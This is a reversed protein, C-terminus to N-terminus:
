LGLFLKVFQILVLLQSLLQIFTQELQLLVLLNLDELKNILKFQFQQVVQVVELMWLLSAQAKLRVIFMDM